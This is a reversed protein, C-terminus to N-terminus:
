KNSYSCIVKFGGTLFLILVVTVESIPPIESTKPSTEGGLQAQICGQWFVWGREQSKPGPADERGM